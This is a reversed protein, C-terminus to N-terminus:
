SKAAQKAFAENIAELNSKVVAHIVRKVLPGLTPVNYEYELSQSRGSELVEAYRRIIGKDAHDPFVDLLTKGAMDALRFGSLQEGAPNAFAFTFNTIRGGPERVPALVVVGNPLHALLQEYFGGSEDHKNNPAFM